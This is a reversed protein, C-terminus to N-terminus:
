DGKIAYSVATFFDFNGRLKLQLLNQAQLVPDNIRKPDFSVFGRDVDDRKVMIGNDFWVVAGLDQERQKPMGALLQALDFGAPLPTDRVALVMTEMGRDGPAVEFGGVEGKSTLQEPLNLKEKPKEEAPRQQWDGNKWPYIPTVKGTTEILFLYPYAPSPLIAEVRVLDGPQLPLASIDRLRLDQRRKPDKGWIRLDLTAQLPRRGDLQKPGPRPSISVLALAQGNQLVHLNGKLLQISLTVKGHKKLIFKDTEFELEGHKIRLTHEGPEVSIEQTDAGKFKFEGQDIAVRIAPDTIEIHV